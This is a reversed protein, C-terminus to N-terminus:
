LSGITDDQEFLSLQTDDPDLSPPEKLDEKKTKKPLSKKEGREHDKYDAWEFNYRDVYKGNKTKIVRVNIETLEKIEKIAVNLTNREFHFRMFKGAKDQYATAPLDFLQFLQKTTLWRYNQEFSKADQETNWSKLYLYLRLSFDSKFKLISDLYLLTYHDFLNTLYPMLLTDISIEIPGGEDKKPWYTGALVGGLYTGGRKPDFFELSTKRQLGRFLEKYKAYRDDGTLQLKKFLFDKEIRVVNDRSKSLETLVIHFVKSEELSMRNNARLVLNSVKYEVPLHPLDNEPLPTEYFEEHKENNTYKM